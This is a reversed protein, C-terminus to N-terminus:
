INLHSQDDLMGYMDTFYAKSLCEVYELFLEDPKKRSAEIKDQIWFFLAAGALGTLLIGLTCVTSFLFRRKRHRM